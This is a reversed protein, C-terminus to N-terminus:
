KGLPELILERPLTIIKRLALYWHSDQAVTEASCHSQGRQAIGSGCSISSGHPRVTPELKSFVVQATCVGLSGLSSGFRDTENWGDGREPWFGFRGASKPESSEIKCPRQVGVEAVM